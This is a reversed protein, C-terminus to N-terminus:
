EEPAPNTVNREMEARASAFCKLIVPSFVGCAGSMIMDYARSLPIAKKYVRENVLADYVDALAVIQASLPIDDGSLGEPYGKGDWREHHYRAIDSSVRGYEDDLIKETKGILESGFVTHRQMIEREEDTFRGPKLLVADSIMIKGIDHLPSATTIVEISHEDLGCDPYLRLMEDAIIKTYDKVRRIHEGSENNRAEVITGLAAIVNIYSEKLKAAQEALQRNQIRLRETQRDVTEELHNRYLYLDAASGVRRKVIANNFPKAIFDVVGYDFCKAETEVTDEGTIVLVPIKVKYSNLAELVGFGDLRPMMLDLLIVTLINRNETIMELATIGDGATLIDYDDELMESLIDRNMEVDDVILVTKRM